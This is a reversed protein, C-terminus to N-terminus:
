LHYKSLYKMKWSNEHIFKQEMLIAKSGCWEYFHIYIFNFHSSLVKWNGRLINFNLKSLLKFKSLTQNKQASTEASRFFNLCQIAWFNKIIHATWLAFKSKVIQCHQKTTHFQYSPFASKGGHVQRNPVTSETIECLPSLLWSFDIKCFLWITVQVEGNPLTSNPLLYVSSVFYNLLIYEYKISSCEHSIM